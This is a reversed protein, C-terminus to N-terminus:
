FRRSLEMQSFPVMDFKDQKKAENINTKIPTIFKFEDVKVTETSM